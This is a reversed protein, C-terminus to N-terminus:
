GGAIESSRALVEARKATNRVIASILVHENPHATGVQLTYVGDEQLVSDGVARFEPKADLSVGIGHGVSAALAAHLPFPQPAQRTTAYLAATRRGPRVNAILTRLASEARPMASGHHSATIFMDAWYGSVKVAIYGVLPGPRKEFRGQYPVLTRGGDLSVLTRVDQAARSRAVQEADLAATE